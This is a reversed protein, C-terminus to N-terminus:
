STANPYSSITTRSRCLHVTRQKINHTRGSGFVLGCRTPRYFRWVVEWSNTIDHTDSRIDISFFLSYLETEHVNLVFSSRYLFGRKSIVEILMFVMLLITGLLIAQNRRSWPLSTPIIRETVSCKSVIAKVGPSKGGTKMMFIPPIDKCKFNSTSNVIQM